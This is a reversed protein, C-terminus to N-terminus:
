FESIEVRIQRSRDSPLLIRRIYRDSILRPHDAHIINTSSNRNPLHGPMGCPRTRHRPVVRQEARPGPVLCYYMSVHPHGLVVYGLEMPVLLFYAPEFPGEVAALEGATAVVIRQHEPILVGGRRGGFDLLV